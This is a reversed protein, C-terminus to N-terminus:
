IGESATELSETTRCQAGGEISGDGTVMNLVVSSAV